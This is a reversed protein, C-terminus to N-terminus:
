QLLKSVQLVGDKLVFYRSRWNKMGGAMNRLAGM